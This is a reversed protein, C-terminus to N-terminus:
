KDELYHVIKSILDKNKEVHALTTNCKFCLLGRVQGTEHDHDVALNNVKGDNKRNTSMTEPNHCIACVGNQAELM